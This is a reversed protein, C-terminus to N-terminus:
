IRGRRLLTVCGAFMTLLLSSPEPIATSAVAPLVFTEGYSLEWAALDLSSLPPLLEGRQWKLFDAGDVDNDHDFDAYAVLVAEQALLAVGARTVDTAFAYDYTVGSPSNPDNALRDSADEATHYYTNAIPNPPYWDGDSNEIALFSPIGGDYFSDNDSGSYWGDWLDGM